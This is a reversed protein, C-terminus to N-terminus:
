DVGLHEDLVSMDLSHRFSEVQDTSATATADFNNLLSGIQLLYRLTQQPIDFILLFVCSQANKNM